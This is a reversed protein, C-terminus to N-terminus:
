QPSIDSEYKENVIDRAGTFQVVFDVIAGQKGTSLGLMGKGALFGQQITKFDDEAHAWALGYAVEADTKAFIHPVGFSDRVIDIQSPDIQLEDVHENQSFVLVFSFCLMAAVCLTKM